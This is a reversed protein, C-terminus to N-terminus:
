FQKTSLRIKSLQIFFTIFAAEKLFKFSNNISYEICEVIVSNMTLKQPMYVIIHMIM